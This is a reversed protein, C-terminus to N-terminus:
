NGQIQDAELSVSNVDSALIATGIPPRLYAGTFLFNDEDAVHAPVAFFIFLNSFSFLFSFAYINLLFRWLSSSGRVYRYGM